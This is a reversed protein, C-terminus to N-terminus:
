RVLAYMDCLKRGVGTRALWKPSENSGPRGQVVKAHSQICQTSGGNAGSLGGKVHLQRLARITLTDSVDPTIQLHMGFGWNSHRM